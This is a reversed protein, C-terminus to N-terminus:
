KSPSPASYSGPLVYYNKNIYKPFKQVAGCINQNTIWFGKLNSAYSAVVPATNIPKKSSYMVIVTKLFQEIANNNELTSQNTCWKRQM